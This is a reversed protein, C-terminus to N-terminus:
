SNWYIWKGHSVEQITKGPNEYQSRNSWNSPASLSRFPRNALVQYRYRLGGTSWYTGV